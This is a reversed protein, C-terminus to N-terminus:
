LLLRCLSIIGVRLDFFLLFVPERNHTRKQRKKQYLIHLHFHSYNKSYIILYNM